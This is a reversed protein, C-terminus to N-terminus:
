RPTTDSPAPVVLKNQPEPQTIPSTSATTAPGTDTDWFTWAVAGIIFVAMVAAWVAWFSSHSHVKDTPRFGPDENTM